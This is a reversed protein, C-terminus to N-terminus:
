KARFVSVSTAPLSVAAADDKVQAEGSGFLRDLERV